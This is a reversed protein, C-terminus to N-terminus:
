PSTCFTHGWLWVSCICDVGSIVFGLIGGIQEKYFFNKILLSMSYYMCILPCHIFIIVHVNCYVNICVTCILM